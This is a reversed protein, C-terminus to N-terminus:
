AKVDITSTPLIVAQPTETLPVEVAAPEITFRKGAYKQVCDIFFKHTMSADIQIGQPQAWGIVPVSCLQKGDDEFYTIWYSISNPMPVEM